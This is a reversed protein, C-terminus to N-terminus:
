RGVEHPIRVKRIINLELKLKEYSKDMAFKVAFKANSLILLNCIIQNCSHTLPLIVLM